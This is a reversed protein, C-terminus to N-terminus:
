YHIFFLVVKSMAQMGQSLNITQTQDRNFPSENNSELHRSFGAFDTSQWVQNIYHEKLLQYKFKWWHSGAQRYIFVFLSVNFPEM